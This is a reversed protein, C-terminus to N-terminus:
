EKNWLDTWETSNTLQLCFLCDSVYNSLESHFPNEKNWLDTWLLVGWSSAIFLEIFLLAKKPSDVPGRRRYARSRSKHCPDDQIEPTLKCFPSTELTLLSYPGGKNVVKWGLVGQFLLMRLFVFVTERTPGSRTLPVSPSPQQCTAPTVHCRNTGILCLPSSLPHPPTLLYTHTCHPSGRFGAVRPAVWLTRILLTVENWLPFKAKPCKRLPWMEPTWILPLENVSGIKPCKLLSMFVPTAVNWPDLNSPTWQISLTTPLSIYHM